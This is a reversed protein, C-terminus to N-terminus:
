YQAAFEPGAAVPDVNCYDRRRLTLITYSWIHRVEQVIIRRSKTISNHELLEDPSHPASIVNHMLQM